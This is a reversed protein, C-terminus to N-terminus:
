EEMSENNGAADTEGLNNGTNRTGFTPSQRDFGLTGSVFGTGIDGHNFYIFFPRAHNCPSVACRARYM